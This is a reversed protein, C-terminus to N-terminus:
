RKDFNKTEVIKIEEMTTEVNTNDSTPKSSTVHKEAIIKPAESGELLQKVNVARKLYLLLINKMSDKKDPNNEMEIAQSLADLGCDYDNYATRYQGLIANKSGRELHSKAKKFIESVNVKSSSGKTATNQVYDGSAPLKPTSEREKARPIKYDLISTM